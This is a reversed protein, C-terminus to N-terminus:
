MNQLSEQLTVRMSQGRGSKHFREFAFPDVSFYITQLIYAAPPTATQNMEYVTRVNGIAKDIEKISHPSETWTALFKQL